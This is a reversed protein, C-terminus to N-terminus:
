SCVLREDLCCALLEHELLLECQDSRHVVDEWARCSNSSGATCLHQRTQMMWLHQQCPLLPCSLVVQCGSYQMRKLTQRYM